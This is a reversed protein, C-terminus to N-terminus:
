APQEAQKEQTLAALQEGALRMLAWQGALFWLGLLLAGLNLLWVAPTLWQRAQQVRTLWGQVEAQEARLQPLSPRHELLEAWNGAVTQLGQLAQDTVGNQSLFLGIIPASRAQAALDGLTRVADLTEPRALLDLPALSATLQELGTNLNTLGASAQDLWHALQPAFILTLGWTGLTLLVSLGIGLGGLLRALRWFAAPPRPRTPAPTM